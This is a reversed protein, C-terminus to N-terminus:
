LSALKSAISEESQHLRTHLSTQILKKVFALKASDNGERDAVEKHLASLFTWSSDEDHPIHLVSPFCGEQRKSFNRCTILRALIGAFLKMVAPNDLALDELQPIFNANIIDIHQRLAASLRIQESLIHGLLEEYKMSRDPHSEESAKACLAHFQEKSVSSSM